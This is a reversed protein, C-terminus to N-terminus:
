SEQLRGGGDYVVHVALSHAHIRNGDAALWVCGATVVPQDCRRRTVQWKGPTALCDSAFLTLLSKDREGRSERGMKRGKSQAWYLVALAPAMCAPVIIIFMGYQRSVDALLRRMRGICPECGVALEDVLHGVLHIRCHVREPHLAIRGVCEGHRAM